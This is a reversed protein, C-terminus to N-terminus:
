NRRNFYSHKVVSLDVGERGNGNGGFRGDSKRGSGAPVEPSTM